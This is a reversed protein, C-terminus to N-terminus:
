QWYRTNLYGFLTDYKNKKQASCSTGAPRHNKYQKYYDLQRSKEINYFTRRM